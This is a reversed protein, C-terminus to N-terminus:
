LALSVLVDPADSGKAVDNLMFVVGMDVCEALEAGLLADRVGRLATWQAADGRADGLAEVAAQTPGPPGPSRPSQRQSRESPSRM